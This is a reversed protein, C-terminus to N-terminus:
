FAETHYGKWVVTEFGNQQLLQERKSVFKVIPKKM